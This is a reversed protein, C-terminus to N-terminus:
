LAEEDLVFYPPHDFDDLDDVRRVSQLNLPAGKLPVVRLRLRDGTRYSAAPLFVNDKMGWFVAIMQDDGYAGEVVRDVHLKLYTLCDKYPVPFPRPM